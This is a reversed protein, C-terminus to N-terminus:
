EMADDERAQKTGNEVEMPEEELPPLPPGEAVLVPEPGWQVWRGMYEIRVDSPTVGQELEEGTELHLGLWFAEEEKAAMRQPM